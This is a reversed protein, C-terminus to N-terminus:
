WRLSWSCFDAEFLASSSENSSSSWDFSPLFTSPSSLSSSVNLFDHVLKIMENM